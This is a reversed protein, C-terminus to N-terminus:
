SARALFSALTVFRKFASPEGERRYKYYLFMAALSVLGGVSMTVSQTAPGWDLSMKCALLLPLLLLVGARPRM